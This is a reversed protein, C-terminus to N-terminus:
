RAKRSERAVVPADVKAPEIVRVMRNEGCGPCVKPKTFAVVENCCGRCVYHAMWAYHESM